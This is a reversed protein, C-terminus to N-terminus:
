QFTWNLFTELAKMMPENGGGGYRYHVTIVGMKAGHEPNQETTMETAWWDNGGVHLGWKYGDKKQQCQDANAHGAVIEAIRRIVAEEGAKYWIGSKVEVRIQM